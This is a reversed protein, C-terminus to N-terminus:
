IRAPKNTSSVNNNVKNTAIDSGGLLGILVVACYLQVFLGYVDWFSAVVLSLILIDWGNSIMM